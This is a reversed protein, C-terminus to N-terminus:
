LEAEHIFISYFDWLKKYVNNVLYSAIDPNKLVDKKPMKNQIYLYRYERESISEIQRILGQYNYINLDFVGSEGIIIEYKLEILKNIIKKIESKTQPEKIKKILLNWAWNAGPYEWLNKYDYHEMMIGAILYKKDEIRLIYKTQSHPAFRMRPKSLRKNFALKRRLGFLMKLKKLLEAPILPLEVLYAKSGRTSYSVTTQFKVGMKENLTQILEDVFKIVEGRSVDSTFNRDNFKFPM